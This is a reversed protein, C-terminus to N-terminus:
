QRRRQRFFLTSSPASGDYPELTSRESANTTTLTASLPDHLYAVADDEDTAEWEGSAANLQLTMELDDKTNFVCGIQGTLFPDNRRANDNDPAIAPM